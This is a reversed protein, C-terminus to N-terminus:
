FRSLEPKPLARSCVCYRWAGAALRVTAIQQSAINYGDESFFGLVLTLHIKFSKLRVHSCSALVDVGAM